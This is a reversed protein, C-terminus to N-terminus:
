TGGAKRITAPTDSSNLIFQFLAPLLTRDDLTSPSDLTKDVNSSAIGQKINFFHWYSREKSQKVGSRTPIVRTLALDNERKALKTINRTYSQLLVFPQGFCRFLQGYFHHL